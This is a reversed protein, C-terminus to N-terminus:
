ATIVECGGEGVIVTDEAQAIPSGSVERLVPYNKLIGEKELMRLSLDVRGGEPLWRRAFPLTRYKGVEKLLKRGGRSRVNAEPDEVSYIEGGRSEKVRGKGRTTFPEVAIVDGENLGPGGAKAVNPVSPSAHQM